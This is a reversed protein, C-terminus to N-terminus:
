RMFVIGHHAMLGNMKQYLLSKQFLDLSYALRFAVEVQERELNKTEDSGYVQKLALAMMKTLDHGVIVEWPKHNEVRLTQLEKKVDANNIDPRHSHGKVATILDDDGMYSMDTRWNVFKKFELDKKGGSDKFSLNWGNRKSVIRLEGVRMANSCLLKQVKLISAKDPTKEYAFLQRAIKPFAGSWFIMTEIDNTDTYLTNSPLKEPSQIRHQDNDVIGLAYDNKAREELMKMLELVHDRTVVQYISCNEDVTFDEMLKADTAGEMIICIESHSNDMSIENCITDIDVEKKLSM